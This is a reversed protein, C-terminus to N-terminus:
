RALAALTRGVVAYAAAVSGWALLAIFTVRPNWIAATVAILAFREGIPLVLIRKGWRTWSRRELAGAAAVASLAVSSLTLRRTAPREGAGRATGARAPVASPPAPAVVTTGGAGEAMAFAAVPTPRPRAPLDITLPADEPDDLPLTPEIAEHQRAAYAFDVMHRFTQLTVAAAALLWVDDGFGRTAGIALGAYVVYEKSRDFVSDLWAGLKSFTRTHRALQGDVCDVTFAAHLLLAGLVLSVRTGVAFSAASAVGIVFSVTTMANPTWGRRAAFRAIYKSYPSVFFTTFFGDQAKVAADLAVRDEDIEDMESMAAEAAGVSLPTAYFFGRLSNRSLHVGSRVLGVLLLAVVDERVARVRLSVEEDTDPDLRISGAPPLETPDPFEGTEREIAMRWLRARWEAVTLAMQDDWRKPRPETVLEAFERAAAVLQARDHPDVKVFGLFYSNPVGVRHYPSAASVVRGRVIRVRFSWLGRGHSGTGLIGSVIRPDALLGALAERHTVAHANGVILRGPADAAIEAAARLDDAQDESEVVTVDVGAGLAAEEIAGKWAPRTVVWARRVDLSELTALLRVLLTSGRAPLAAAPRGDAAAATAFLLASTTV